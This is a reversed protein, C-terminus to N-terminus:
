PGGAPRMPQAHASSAPVAAQAPVAAAPAVKPPAAEPNLRALLSAYDQIGALIAAAIKDRYAPTALLAGEIDSSLFAPEVLVGPCKLGRLAGLHEFKEGRDGARMADLLRRHLPGALVTNWVNNANIPSDTAQSDDKKGPSWSDASRQTRPPFIMLEVGTTKTNPYLSNFHVSVVLDAGAQNAIESRIQKDVTVDSDRTLVVTFGAKELLKRLRLSVDLTYTKEMTGLKPNETGKDLGGHGPDIVIVRPVRPPPGCLEPRLRPLLRTEFDIRSVYFKGGREIVPDGFFVRLGRIDTERSGDALRAVPQTGDRLIVAAPGVLRVLRLGLRVAGDDLSVYDIGKNRIGPLAGPPGAGQLVPLFFLLLAALRM